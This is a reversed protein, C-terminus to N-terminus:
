GEPWRARLSTRWTGRLVLAPIRRGHDVARVACARSPLAPQTYGVYWSNIGAPDALLSWSREGRRSSRQAGCHAKRTIAGNRAGRRLGTARLDISSSARMTGGARRATRGHGLLQPTHPNNHRTRRTAAWQIEVGAKKGARAAIHAHLPWATTRARGDLLASFHLSSIRGYSNRVVTTGDEATKDGRTPAVDRPRVPPMGVVHATTGRSVHAPPGVEDPEDRPTHGLLGM